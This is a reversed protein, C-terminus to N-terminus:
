CAAGSPRLCFCRTVGGMLLKRNHKSTQLDVSGWRRQNASRDRLNQLQNGADSTQSNVSLSASPVSPSVSDKSVSDDSFFDAPLLALLADPLQTGLSHYVEALVTPVAALFRACCWFM